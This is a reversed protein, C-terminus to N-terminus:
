SSLCKKKHMWSVCDVLQRFMHRVSKIWENSEKLVEQPLKQQELTYKAGADETHKTKIYEFLDGGKCNEMAYFYCNEDEWEDFIRVFGPNCDEQSSLYHMIEKELIFNEPVRHGERSKGLQVLQKWTEKVVVYMGNTKDIALYIRGQLTDALHRKLEFRQEGQLKLNNENANRNVNDKDNNNNNNNNNDNNKNNNILVQQM